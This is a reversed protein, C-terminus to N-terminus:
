SLPPARSRFAVRPPENAALVVAFRHELREEGVPVPLQPAQPVFSTTTLYITACIACYDDVDNGPHPAPSGQAGQGGAEAVAVPPAARHLGYLHVHGFSLVLQLALAALGLWGGFRRYDRVWRM